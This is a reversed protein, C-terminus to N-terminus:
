DQPPIVLLPFVARYDPSGPVTTRVTIRWNYRPNAKSETTTPQSETPIIAVLDTTASGGRPILSLDVSPASLSLLDTTTTKTSKGSGTTLAQQLVLAADLTGAPIERRLPLTVRVGLPVGLVGTPQGIEVVADEVSRSVLWAHIVMAIPVLLLAAYVGTAWWALAEIPAAVSFYHALGLAGTGMITAALWRRNIRRSIPDEPTLRHPARDGPAPGPISSRFMSIGASIFFGGVVAGILTFLYPFFATRRVLFARSPQDPDRYATVTAGIQFPAIADQAYPHSGSENIPYLDSSRYPASGVIYSFTVTPRYSVSGKSGRVTDIDKAQIIAPVPLWDTNKVHQNWAQVAGLVFFVVPVALLLLGVFTQFVRPM